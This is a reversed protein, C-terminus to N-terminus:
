AAWGHTRRLSSDSDLVLTFCPDRFGGPLMKVTLSYATPSSAGSRVGRVSFHGSFHILSLPSVEGRVMDKKELIENLVLNGHLDTDIPHELHDLAHVVQCPKAAQASWTTWRKSWRSRDSPQFHHINSKLSSVEVLSARDPGPM